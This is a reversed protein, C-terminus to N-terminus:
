MSIRTAGPSAAPSTPCSPDFAYGIRGRVTGVYDITTNFPVPSRALAPGDTPGTFTADAEIGLVVRNALQRNYGLQYGGSLGTASHPLIVGQEPLPNTGPGFGADGYGFHGGVYFGTWDYVTKAARAKLPLDAAFGAAPLALVGSALAAATRLYLYRHGRLTLSRGWVRSHGLVAGSM